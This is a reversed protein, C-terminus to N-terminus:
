PPCTAGTAPLSGSALYARIALRVCDSGQGFAVHGYHNSTLLTANGLAETMAVSWEYPTRADMIGGIVLLPPADLAIPSAVPDPTAPWGACTAAGELYGQAFLPSVAEFEAKLSELEALTPPEFTDDSCSVSNFAVDGGDGGGGGGGLLQFIGEGGPDSAEDILVQVLDPITAQYALNLSWVQAFAAGIGRQNANAVARDFLLRADPPCTPLEGSECTALILEHLDVTQYFKARMSRVLSARPHVAGDLVVRGTTEPFTHAYLAGLRTGYSAGLFNLVPQNLAKRIEEMDRVVNNSGLERFLPGWALECREGQAQYDAIYDAFGREPAAAPTAGPYIDEPETGCGTEGSSAVGRPDFGIIDYGPAMMEFLGNQVLSLADDIGEGGPGGPNYLLAGHYPELPNAAIRRVSIAIEDGEPLDYDLPVTVEACELNRDEFQGCNRWGLAASSLPRADTPSDAAADLETSPAGFPLPSDDDSCAFASLLLVSVIGSAQFNKM